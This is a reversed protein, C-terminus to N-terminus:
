NIWVNDCTNGCSPAIHGGQGSTCNIITGPRLMSKQVYIYIESIMCAAAAAM